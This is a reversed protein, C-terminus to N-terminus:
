EETFEEVQGELLEVYRICVTGMEIQEGEVLCCWAPRHIVAPLGAQGTTAAPPGFVEIRGAERGCGM